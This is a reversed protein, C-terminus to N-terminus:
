GLLAVEAVLGPGFAIAVCPGEAGSRRLRDLILRGRGARTNVRVLVVAAVIVAILVFVRWSSLFASVGILIRVQRPTYFQDRESHPFAFNVGRLIRAQKKM